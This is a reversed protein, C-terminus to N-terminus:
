EKTNCKGNTEEESTEVANTSDQQEKIENVIEEMLNEEEQKSPLPKLNPVYNPDDLMKKMVKYLKHAGNVNETIKKSVVRKEWGVIRYKGEDTPELTPADVVTSVDHDKYDKSIEHLQKGTQGKIEKRLQKLKAKRGM